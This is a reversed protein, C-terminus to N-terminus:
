GNSAEWVARAATTASRVVRDAMDPPPLALELRLGDPGFVVSRAGSFNFFDDLASALARNGSVSGSASRVEVRLSWARGRAVETWRALDIESRVGRPVVIFGHRAVRKSSLQLTRRHPDLSVRFRPGGHVLDFWLGLIPDTQVMQGHEAALKALAIAWPEGPDKLVGSRVLWPWTALPLGLLLAVVGGAARTLDAEALPLALAPAVAWAGALMM